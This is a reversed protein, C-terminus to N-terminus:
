DCSQDHSKDCSQDHSKDCSQDHSQDRSKDHSQDHSKDCSQPYTLSVMDDDTTQSFAGNNIDARSDSVRAILYTPLNFQDLGEINLQIKQGPYAKRQLSCLM